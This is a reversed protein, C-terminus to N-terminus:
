AASVVLSVGPLVIGNAATFPELRAALDARVAVREAEPLKATVMSIAGAVRMLFDWYDAEGAFSWHLDVEDITVEDFGAEEVLRRLRKADGLAFIGPAGPAPPPIHGRDALVRSPLAAWPNREPGAFVAASVRRGPTLVRRTEALAAAPNGMLMYGFRCLVGDVWADPLDIREGDLVRHECNRLGLEDARRSAAAIMGEAFDSLIVRCTPHALAAALGVVGTGGALELIRDGARAELRALMVDTVPRATAEFYAHREDWGPAMAEWVAHSARRYEATDM